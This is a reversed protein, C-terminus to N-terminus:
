EKEYNVYSCLAKNLSELATQEGLVGYNTHFHIDDQVNQVTRNHLVYYKIFGKMVASESLNGHALDFLWVKMGERYRM